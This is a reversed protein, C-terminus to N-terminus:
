DRDLILSSVAIMIWGLAFNTTGFDNTLAYYIGTSLLILYWLTQIVIKFM